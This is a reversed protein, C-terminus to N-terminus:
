RYGSNCWIKGQFHLSHSFFFMCWWRDESMEKASQENSSFCLQNCLVHVISISFYESFLLLLVFYIYIYLTYICVENNDIFFFCSKRHLVFTFTNQQNVLFRKIYICLLTLFFFYTSVFFLFQSFILINLPSNFRVCFVLVNFYVSAGFLHLSFM